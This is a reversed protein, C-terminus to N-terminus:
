VTNGFEPVCMPDTKQEDCYEQLLNHSTPLSLTMTEMFLELENQFAVSNPGPQANQAIPVRFLTDATSLKKGPVHSIDYDFRDLQLQFRLVRNPLSHLHTTSLLPVLPKHDKEITFKTGLIYDVLKECAWTTALVEKEIQAYCREVESLNRLAFAIPKWADSNKQLLVAGLGFSSADASVKTPANPNYLVLVTPKLLEKKTASFAQEQTATWCWSNKKSLLERLPKTVTAM